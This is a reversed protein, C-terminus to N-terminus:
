RGAAGGRADRRVNVRVGRNGLRAFQERVRAVDAATADAAVMRVIRGVGGAAHAGTGDAYWIM